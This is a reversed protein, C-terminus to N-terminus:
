TDLDLDEVTTKAGYYNNLFGSNYSLIDADSFQYDCCLLHGGTLGMDDIKDQIAQLKDTNTTSQSINHYFFDNDIMTHAMDIHIEYPSSQTSKKIKYIKNNGSGTIYYVYTLGWGTVGRVPLWKMQAAYYLFNHTTDQPITVMYVINGTGSNERWIEKTYSGGSMEVVWNTRDPILQLISPLFRYSNLRGPIGVCKATPKIFAIQNVFTPTGGNKGYKKFMNWFIEEISKRTWNRGM